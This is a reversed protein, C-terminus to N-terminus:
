LVRRAGYYRPGWYVDNLKDMRIGKSSSAHIFSDEGVYIGCHEISKEDAFFVLDGPQLSNKAVYRGATCQEDATRPLTVSCQQFVYQTYGSCDFGDPTTGGFKYPTGTYKKATAVIASASASLPKAKSSEVVPTKKIQRTPKEPANEDSVVASAKSATNLKSWTITDVVGTPRLNESKQFAVVAARTEEGFIGDISTVSFHLSRLRQQLLSVSSGRSNMKLYVAAEAAYPSSVAFLFIVLIGAAFVKSVHKM